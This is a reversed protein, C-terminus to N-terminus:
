PNIGLYKEDNITDLMVRHPNAVDMKLVSKLISPSFGSVLATGQKDFSVPFNNGRSQINWFVIKPLTYNNERYLNEIEEMASNKPNRMAMDFEMDSLILIKTPMDCARVNNEKAQELLKEFVKILNTNMGWNSNEMQIMREKLSGSTHVLHPNQSFTMFYDKFPGENRESIYLGLSLAVDMCTLNPNNGVPAEMSASVDVLPFVLDHCEAMYNPLANWQEQALDNNGMRLNKIVDYPYIAKANVKVKGVKLDAVYQMYRVPDNVKFAKTYRSMALSPLKTYDIESWKKACMKTEVVNTNSVLLKRYEKPSMKFKKRLINATKGKRPMWKACLQHGDELSEKIKECIADECKSGLGVLMDDWRGLYNVYDLNKIVSDPHNECLWKFIIRFTNREGAGDIVDRSWFLIRLAATKNENFARIFYRLIRESNAGRLAGITFFLDLCRDFSSSNTPMGNETTIDKTQLSQIFDM